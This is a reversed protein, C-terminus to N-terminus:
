ADWNDRLLEERERQSEGNGISLTEEDETSLTPKETEPPVYERSNLNATKETLLAQLIYEMGRLMTQMQRMAVGQNELRSNMESLTVTTDGISIAQKAL